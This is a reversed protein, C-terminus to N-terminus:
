LGRAYIYSNIYLYSIECYGGAPCTLDIQAGDPTRYTTSVTVNYDTSSSNYYVVTHSDGNTTLSVPCTVNNLNSSVTVVTASNKLITPKNKIYDKATTTTQNWNSQIQADPITPKNSLDNYSGSTAVTALTPKNLIVANGTAANWDSQVNSVKNNWSTIDTSTIGAAPSASFIPDTEAILTGTNKIFGWSSVTSETVAPPIDNITAIENNNYYAISTNLKIVDGTISLTDSNSGPILKIDPQNLIVANGSTANWDAQVNEQITVAGTQGNVSTIPITPIVGDALDSAPIGTSPKTYKQGIQASITTAFNADNGLATALENLTDLAAPASDVLGAVANDVYTETALGQISPISLTVAGTQGNVSSVGSVININGSGTISENNITKLIQHSTLVNGLDITTNGSKNLTFSGITSGNMTITVTSDSVTPYAPLTIAGSSPNYTTEGITIGQVENEQLSTVSSSCETIRDNLNNLAASIVENNYNKEIQLLNHYHQLGSLDLFKTM